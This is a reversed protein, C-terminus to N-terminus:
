EAFPDASYHVQVPNDVYMVAYRLADLGHDNVKEPEEKLTRGEPSKAWVYGPIEEIVSKPKKGLLDDEEDLATRSFFIRPRGDEAVRLRRQVAQIGPKVANKAPSANLHANNFARIYAPESPDCVFAEIGYADRLEQAREVWWDILERSRYVEHILYMRGDGDVAWVQIVGPNTFGWDVSAIVRKVVERNLAVM